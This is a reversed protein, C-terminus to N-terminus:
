AAGPPPDFRVAPLELLPVADSGVLFTRQGVGRVPAGDGGQWDTTRALLALDDPAPGGPLPPYVAPLFVEGEPGGRVNMRARRWLTDRPRVPAHPEVSEVQEVPVWMYKGTSTLVEFVGATMDDLDRFDDFAEGGAEGTPHPREAEARALLEAAEASAGERASVSAALLLRVSESPLGLLEPVRGEAFFQRRWQEARVLQRLLAVPPGAHPDSQAVVDLHTDAREFSGSLCLLEVLFGRAELDSPRARVAEGAAQVAEGLRGARYLEKADM